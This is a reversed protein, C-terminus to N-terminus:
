EPRRQEVERSTLRPRRPEHCSRSRVARKSSRPPRPHGLIRPGERHAEQQARRQRPDEGTSAARSSGAGTVSCGDRPDVVRRRRRLRRAPRREREGGHRRAHQPLRAQARSAAHPMQGGEFYLMGGAVRALARVRKAAAVPRAMARARGAVWATRLKRKAARPPSSLKSVIDSMDNKSSTM